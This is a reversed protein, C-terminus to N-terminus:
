ALRVPSSCVTALILRAITPPATPVANSVEIIYKTAGMIVPCAISMAAM